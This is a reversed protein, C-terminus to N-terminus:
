KISDSVAASMSAPFAVILIRKLATLHDTSWPCKNIVTLLGAVVLLSILYIGAVRKVFEVVHGKFNFRYFNYYVFLGIFILSLVSLGIVNALPLEKGLVWTEETFAVPISLLSAGVVVQMVDRPKFEVMLPKLTYDLVKGTADVIPVVRHLYGGIRKIMEDPTKKLDM